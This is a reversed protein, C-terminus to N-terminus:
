IAEKETRIENLDSLLVTSSNQCPSHHRGAEEFAMSFPYLEEVQM